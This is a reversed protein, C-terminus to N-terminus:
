MGTVFVGMESLTRTKNQKTKKNKRKGFEQYVAGGRSNKASSFPRSSTPIEEDKAKADGKDKCFLPILNLGSHGTGTTEGRLEQRDFIHVQVECHRAGGLRPRHFQSSAQPAM